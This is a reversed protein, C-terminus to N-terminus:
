RRELLTQLFQQNHISEYGEIVEDLTVVAQHHLRVVDDYSLDTVMGVSSLGHGMIMVMAVFYSKCDVCSIHVLHASEQRAFLRAQEKNYEGNCIPCRSMMKLAEQWDTSKKPKSM